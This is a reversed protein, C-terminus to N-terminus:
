PTPRAAPLGSPHAADVRAQVIAVQVRLGSVEGRLSSVESTLDRRTAAVDERLDGLQATLMQYLVVAVAGATGVGRLAELAGATATDLDGLRRRRGSQGVDTVPEDSM